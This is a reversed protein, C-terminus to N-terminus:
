KNRGKFKNVIRQYFVEKSDSTFKGDIVVHDGFVFELKEMIMDVTKKIELAQLRLMEIETYTQPPIRVLMDKNDIQDTM